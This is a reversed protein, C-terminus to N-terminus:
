LSADGDYSSPDWIGPDALAIELTPDTAKYFYPWAPLRRRYPALRDFALTKPVDCGVLELAAIRERACRRGAEGILGPLPDAQLAITQYDVLRMRTLGSHPHDQRKFVAYALLEGAGTGKGTRSLTGVWLQGAQLPGAFHWSLEARSRGALLKRPDRRALANWFPDFRDDFGDSWAFTLGDALPPWAPASIRDKLWLAVGAPWSLWGAGPVGKIRLASAAFRTPCTVRYAAREWDGLPVRSSGLVHFTESALQNVTTNFFLDAHEQNFYEDLLWLAFGRYSPAVVWARGNAAILDRGRFVHRSPVNTIAGVIAGHHELVWGIPWRDRLAPWLPNDLWFRRWELEPTTSLGESAELREVAPYDEFCMTRLLPQELGPPKIQLATM